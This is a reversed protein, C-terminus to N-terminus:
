RKCMIGGMFGLLNYIVCWRQLAFRPFSQKTWKSACTVCLTIYLYKYLTLLYHNLCQLTQLLSYPRNVSSVMPRPGHCDRIGSEALTAQPPPKPNVNPYKPAWARSFPKPHLQFKVYCTKSLTVQSELLHAQFFLVGRPPWRLWFLSPGITDFFFRM